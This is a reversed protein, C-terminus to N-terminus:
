RALRCLSLRRAGVQESAMRSRQTTASQSLALCLSYAARPPKRGGELRQPTNPDLVLVACSSAAFVSPALHGHGPEVVHFPKQVQEQLITHLHCACRMYSAVLRTTPPPAGPREQCIESVLVARSRSDEVAHKLLVGEKLRTGRHDATTALRVRGPGAHRWRVKFCARGATTRLLYTTSPTSRHQWV